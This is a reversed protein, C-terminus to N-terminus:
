NMMVACEQDLSPNTNHMMLALLMSLTGSSGGSVTSFDALIILKSQVLSFVSVFTQNCGVIFIGCLPLDLELPLKHLSSPYLHPWRALHCHLSQALRQVLCNHLPSWHACLHLHTTCAWPQLLTGEHCWLLENQHASCQSVQVWQPNCLSSSVISDTRWLYTGFLLLEAAEADGLALMLHMPLQGLFLMGCWIWWSTVRKVKVSIVLSTQVKMGALLEQLVTSAVLCCLAVCYLNLALLLLLWFM